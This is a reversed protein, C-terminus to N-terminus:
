NGIEATLRNLRKKINPGSPRIVHALELLLKAKNPNTHEIAIATDRVNNVYRDLEQYRHIAMGETNLLAYLDFIADVQNVDKNIEETEIPEDPFLKGDRGPFWKQQVNRNSDAFREQFTAIQKFEMARGKGIFAKAIERRVKKANELKQDDQVDSFAANLKFLLDQGLANVSSNTTPVDRDLDEGEYGIARMFDDVVNNQILESHNYLRVNIASRGFVNEWKTLMKEYNCYHSNSQLKKNTHEEFTVAQGNKLATSYLSTM